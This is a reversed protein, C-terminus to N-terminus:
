VTTEVHEFVMRHGGDRTGSFAYRSTVRSGDPGSPHRIVIDAEEHVNINCWRQDSRGDLPGGRYVTPYVPLRGAPTVRRFGTPTTRIAM